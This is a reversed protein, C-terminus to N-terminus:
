DYFLTAAIDKVTRARVRASVAGEEAIIGYSVDTEKPVLGLPLKELLEEYANELAKEKALEYPVPEYETTTESHTESVLSIGLFLGDLLGTTKSEILSQAYGEGESIIVYMWPTKFHRHVSERGTKVQIENFLPAKGSGYYWISGTVEGLACVQLGNEYGSILVQGKKVTDGARVRPTGAFVSISEVLADHVAIVDGRRSPDYIAPAEKSEALRVTMKVGRTKLSIFSFEPRDLLIQEEIARLEKSKKRMGSEIGYEQLMELVQYDLLRANGEVEIMWIYQTFAWIFFAAALFGALLMLRGRAAALVFKPGKRAYIRVKCGSLRAASRMLRLHKVYVTATVADKSRSVDFFMAGNQSAINLFRESMLGTIDIKVTNEAKM